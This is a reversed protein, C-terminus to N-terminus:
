KSGDHIIKLGSRVIRRTIPTPREPPEDSLADNVRERLDESAVPTGSDDFLFAQCERLLSLLGANLVLGRQLDGSVMQYRGRWRDVEEGLEENRQRELLRDEEAKERKQQEDEAWARAAAIAGEAQQARASWEQRLGLEADHERKWDIM